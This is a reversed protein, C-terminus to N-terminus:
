LLHGINEDSPGAALSGGRVHNKEILQRFRHLECRDAPQSLERMGRDSRHDFMEPRFHFGVDQFMTAGLADARHPVHCSNQIHTVKVQGDVALGDRHRAACGHEIRRTELADGDRGQAMLLVFGGHANAAQAHDFGTSADQACGADPGGFFAHGDGSIGVLNAVDAARQELQQHGIM